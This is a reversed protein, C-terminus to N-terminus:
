HKLKHVEHCPTGNSCDVTVTNDYTGNNYIIWGTTAKTCKPTEGLNRSNLVMYYGEHRAYRKFPVYTIAVHACQELPVAGALFDLEVDLGDDAHLAVTTLDGRHDISTITGYAVLPKTEDRLSACGVAAVVPIVVTLLLVALSAKKM